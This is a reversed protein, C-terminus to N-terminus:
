LTNSFIYWKGKWEAEHDVPDHTTGPIKTVTFKHIFIPLIDSVIARQQKLLHNLFSSKGVNPQGVIAVRISEPIPVKKSKKKEVEDQHEKKQAAKKEKSTLRPPVPFDKIVLDLM